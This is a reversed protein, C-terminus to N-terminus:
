LLLVQETHHDKNDSLSLDQQIENAQGAIYFIQFHLIDEKIPFSPSGERPRRLPFFEKGKISYKVLKNIKTIFIQYLIVTRLICFVQALYNFFLSLHEFCSQAFTSLNLLLPETNFTNIKM